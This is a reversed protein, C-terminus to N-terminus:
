LFFKIVSFSFTIYFLLNPIFRYKLNLYSFPLFLAIPIVMFCFWEYQQFFVWDITGLGIAFLLFLYLINTSKRFRISSKLMKNRIGVWSTLLLFAFLIISILFILKQQSYKETSEIFNFNIEHGYYFNYSFAYILPVVLGLTSLIMERFVFPRVRMIMIWIFPCLMALPPHFTAALGVFFGTNFARSRGDHGYELKFMQIFALLIFTQAISLGDLVYFSRYYSLLVVYLLSVIYSNKEYFGNINFFYNLLYANLVILVGSMYPIFPKLLEIQVSGWFGLDLSEKVEFYGVWQNSLLYVAVFGPILLLVLIQNGLFLRLM